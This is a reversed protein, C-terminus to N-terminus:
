LLKKQEGIGRLADIEYASLIHDAFKEFKMAERLSFKSRTRYYDSQHKRMMKLTIIDQASIEVYKKM